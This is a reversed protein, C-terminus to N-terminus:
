KTFRADISCKEKLTAIKLVLNAKIIHHLISNEVV